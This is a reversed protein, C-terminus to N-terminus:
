QWNGLRRLISPIMEPIEDKQFSEKGKIESVKRQRSQIAVRSAVQETEKAPKERSRLKSNNSSELTRVNEAKMEKSM